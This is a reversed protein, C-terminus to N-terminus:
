ETGNRVERVTGKEVRYIRDISIRERIFDDYGTCTIITQIGKLSELLANRRGTDLESMVDDLLLVPDDNIIRKVLEIEALKLSLAATRQQGQSGFVRVDKGDIFIGFDDRQPGTMTASNKIDYDRKNRLAERFDEEATNPEYILEIEEKDGTLGSHISKIIDNMLNLFNKRERIVGQGYEFLQDDWVDLTDKLSPNFYIQRLLNNRQNLVKNYNLLNSYYIRSLQCIEMDMFRRREAPGNKVISLDEPSFFVMNIMGFLETSKRIPIGDVAVGKNGNRRLHMDIRHSVDRKKLGLRIHAEDFGFEIIDKDKSNKHSKTTAAIFLSELINTKGQANDGYFINIGDSFNIDLTDINRYNKLALSDVYM